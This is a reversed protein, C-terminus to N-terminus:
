QKIFTCKSVEGDTDEVELIYTGAAFDVVNAQFKNTKILLVGQLNYINMSKFAQYEKISIIDHTPNPYAKIAIKDPIITVEVQANQLIAPYNTERTDLCENVGGTPLAFNINQLVGKKFRITWSVPTGAAVAKPVDEVVCNLVLGGANTIFTQYDASPTTTAIQTPESLGNHAVQFNCSFFTMLSNVKLTFVMDVHSVTEKGKAVMLVSKQAFVNANLLISFIFIALKNM